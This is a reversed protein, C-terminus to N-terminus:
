FKVSQYWINYNKYCNRTFFNLFVFPLIDVDMPVPNFIKVVGFNPNCSLTNINIWNGFIGRFHIVPDNCVAVGM